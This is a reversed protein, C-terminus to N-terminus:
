LIQTCLETLPISSRQGGRVLWWRPDFPLLGRVAASVFLLSARV